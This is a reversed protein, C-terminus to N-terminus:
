PVNFTLLFEVLRDGEDTDPAGVATRIAERKEDDTLREDDQIDDLDALTFGAVEAPLVPDLRDLGCGPFCTFCTFVVIASIAAAMGRAHQRAQFIM